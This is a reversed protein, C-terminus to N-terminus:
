PANEILHDAGIYHPNQQENQDEGAIQGINVGDRLRIYRLMADITTQQQNITARQNNVEALIRLQKENSVLQHIELGVNKLESKQYKWELEQNETTILLKWAGDALTLASVM